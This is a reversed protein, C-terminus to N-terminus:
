NEAKLDEEAEVAPPASAKRSKLENLEDRVSKYAKSESEAIEIAKKVVNNM